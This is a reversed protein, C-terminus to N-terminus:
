KVKGPILEEEALIELVINRIQDVQGNPNKNSDLSYQSGDVVPMHSPMSPIPVSKMTGILQSFSNVQETTFKKQNISEQQVLMQGGFEAMLPLLENIEFTNYQSPFFGHITSNDITSLTDENAFQLFVIGSIEDISCFKIYIDSL